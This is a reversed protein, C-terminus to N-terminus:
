YINKWKWKNILQLLVAFQFRPNGRINWPKKHSLHVFSRMIEFLQKKSHKQHTVSLLTTGTLNKSTGLFSSFLRTLPDASVYVLAFKIEKTLILIQQNKSDYMFLPPAETVQYGIKQDELVKKLINFACDQSIGAYVEWKNKSLSLLFKV